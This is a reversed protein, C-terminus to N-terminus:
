NCQMLSRYIDALCCCYNKIDFPMVTERATNGLSLRLTENEILSQIAESLQQINGPTVLLGNEGSTVLEPIGGVPTTIAPLGWGMAELLAMPLGENYSPLIFVDAKELVADRQQADVWGLFSVYDTLNLTDVLKRASEIEGDGALILESVKKLEAPLNAFANILDFAGKRQGVRGFFVLRVKPSNIRNPVKTPLETPNPLVSVQKVNLGLNLVYFEKWSESLVIFGKCLRFIKSLGQQAWQPLGCYTLHFKAGHAHMLVPTHFIFAMLTLISKRLFAAEM